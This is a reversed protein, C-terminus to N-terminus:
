SRYPLQRGTRAEWRLIRGTPSTWWLRLTDGDSVNLGYGGSVGAGVEVADDVGGDEDDSHVDRLRVREEQYRSLLSDIVMLNEDEARIDKERREQNFRDNTREVSGPPFQDLTADVELSAEGLREVLEKYKELDYEAANCLSSVGTVTSGM